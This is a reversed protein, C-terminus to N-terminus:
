QDLSMDLAEVSSMSLPVGQLFSQQQHRLEKNSSHKGLFFFNFLFNSFDGLFRWMVLCSISYLNHSFFNSTFTAGFNTTEKKKAQITNYLEWWVMGYIKYM